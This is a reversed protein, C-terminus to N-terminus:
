ALKSPVSLTQPLIQSPQHQPSQGTPLCTSTATPVAAAPAARDLSLWSLVNSKHSGTMASAPWRPLHHGQTRASPPSPSGRSSATPQPRCVVSPLDQPRRLEGGGTSVCGAPESLWACQCSFHGQAGGRLEALHVHDCLRFAMGM